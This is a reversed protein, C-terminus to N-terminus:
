LGVGRTGDGTKDATGGWARRLDQGFGQLRQQVLHNVTGEPYDDTAAQWAGAPMGTLLELGQEVTQIAFVNFRGAKVANVLDKRLMLDPVTAAPIIVGQKGTLGKYCCTDYFGEIKENVGGVAQIDGKQNVSGTIALSQDLPVDSLASLLAFLEATSASDGDIDSYSQEFCVSASLSLPMSRGYRERLFGSIILVGKHHTDGSLSAENEIDMIGGRGPGVTATVRAPRGFVHDGLDYITLANIQGTRKGRVDVMVVGDKLIEAMKREGLNHRLRREDLAQEVHKASISRAKAHRALLDAERLIDTVVHFRSSIRARRGSRRIGDEVIHALASADPPLLEHHSAIRTTVRAYRQQGVRTNAVEDDFEAKIKFLERFEEDSEDLHHYTEADGVLIVKVKLEIPEPKVPSIPAQLAPDFKQIELRGHRLVRKLSRWVGTELFVDRAYMVLYGRDARLLSGSRIKLYDTHGPDGEITGFLNPYSPATEVVVPHDPRGRNDHVVNARFHAFPDSHGDRQQSPYDEIHESPGAGRERNEGESDDTRDLFLDLNSLVTEELEKLYEGVEPQPYRDAIDVLLGSVVKLATDRDLGRLARRARRAVSRCRRLVEELEGELSSHRTQRKKLGKVKLEGAKVKRNVQSLTLTKEGVLVLVEPRAMGGDTVQGLVFGEQRLREDFSQLHRSERDRWRRLIRNRKRHYSESEFVSLLSRHLMDVMEDLDRRFRSGQGRGLTILRPQEPRRWSHVYVRDPAPEFPPSVKQLLARTATERGTGQPGCVFIHYGPGSLELGRRITAIADEQFDIGSPPRTPRARAIAAFTQPSADFRLEKSPVQLKTLRKAFDERAKSSSVKEARTTGSPKKVTGGVGPAVRAQTTGPSRAQKGRGPSGDAPARKAAAGTGASRRGKPSQSTRPSAKQGHSSSSTGKTQRKKRKKEAM